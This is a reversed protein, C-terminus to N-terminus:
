TSNIYIDVRGIYTISTYSDYYKYYYLKDFAFTM